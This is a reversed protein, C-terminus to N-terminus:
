LGYWMGTAAGSVPLKAEWYEDFLEEYGKMLSQAVMESAGLKQILYDYVSKKYTELTKPFDEAIKKNKEM